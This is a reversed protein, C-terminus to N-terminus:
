LTDNVLLTRFAEGYSRMISLHSVTWWVPALEGQGQEYARVIRQRLDLSYAQM